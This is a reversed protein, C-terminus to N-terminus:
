VFNTLFHSVLNVDAGNESLLLGLIGNSIDLSTNLHEISPFFLVESCASIDLVLIGDDSPIEVVGLLEHLLSVM